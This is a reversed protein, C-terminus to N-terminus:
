TCLSFMPNGAREATNSGANPILRRSVTLCGAKLPNQNNSHTEDAPGIYTIDGLIGGAHQESNIGQKVRVQIAEVHLPGSSDIGGIDVGNQHLVLPIDQLLGNVM